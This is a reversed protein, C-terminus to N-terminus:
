HRITLVPCRAQCALRYAVASPLEGTAHKGSRMGIVILDSNAERAYELIQESPEGVRVQFSAATKEAWPSPIGKKMRQVLFDRVIERGATQPDERDEVVHLVTLEAGHESELGYALAAAREAHPKFNTAYLIKRLETSSAPSTEARMGVTLIPREAVRFIEEAVPGLLQKKAQTHGHTGLVILDISNAVTFEQLAPWVREGCLIESRLQEACGTEEVLRQMEAGAVAKAQRAAEEPGVSSVYRLLGSPIAHVLFIRSDFHRALPLACQLAARAGASFDTAVLIRQFNVGSTALANKATLGGTSM